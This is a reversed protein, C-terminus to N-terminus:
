AARNATGLENLAREVQAIIQEPHQMLDVWTFRLITWKQLELENGRIRDGYLAGPLDHYERGDAEVALKVSPWALDIRLYKRGNKRRVKFQLVEPALGARVLLLRILTEFTSEARGDALVLAKKLKRQSHRSSPQPRWGKRLASDVLCVLDDPGLVPTMNDVTRTITVVPFGSRRSRDGKGLGSSMVVGAQSHYSRGTPLMVQPLEKPTWIPLGGLKHLRAASVGCIVGDPRALLAARLSTRFPDALDPASLVGRIPHNWGNRVLTNIQQKSLGAELAQARTVAGEQHRLLTAL